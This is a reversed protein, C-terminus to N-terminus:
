HTDYFGCHCFPVDLMEAMSRALLTKGSGTPGLLLINSKEIQVDRYKQDIADAGSAAEAHLRKYHNYVAVALARKAYEQSVIHEDLGAVIQAPSLLSAVAPSEVPTDAAPQDEAEMLERDIITKCITVCGDCIHVGAPGAIMKKVENQAKGCFSCFTMRTSKAM